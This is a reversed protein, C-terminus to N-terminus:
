EVEIKTARQPPEEGTCEIAVDLLCRMALLMEKRAARLHEVCEEPLVRKGRLCSRLGRVGEALWDEFVFEKEEAM